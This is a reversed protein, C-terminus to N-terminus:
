RHVVGGQRAGEAAGHVGKARPHLGKLAHQLRARSQLFSVCLNIQPLANISGRVEVSSKWVCVGGLGCVAKAQSMILRWWLNDQFRETVGVGDRFLISRVMPERTPRHSWPRSIGDGVCATVM